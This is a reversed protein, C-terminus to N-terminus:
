RRGLRRSDIKNRCVHFFVCGSFGAKLRGIHTAQRVERGQRIPTLRGIVFPIAPDGKIKFGNQLLRKFRRASPPGFFIELSEQRSQRGTAQCNTNRLFLGDPPAQNMQIQLPGLCLHTQKEAILIPDPAKPPLFRVNRGYLRRSPPQFFKHPPPILKTEIGPRFFRLIPRPLREVELETRHRGPDHVAHHQIGGQFPQPQTDRSQFLIHSGVAYRKKRREFGIEGRKRNPVAAIMDSTQGCRHRAPM